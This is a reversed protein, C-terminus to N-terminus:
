IIFKYKNIMISLKEFLSLNTKQKKNKKGGITKFYIMTNM